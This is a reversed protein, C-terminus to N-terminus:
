STNRSPVQCLTSFPIGVLASRIRYTPVATYSSVRRLRPRRFGPHHGARVLIEDVRDETLSLDDISRRRPPPEDTGGIEIEISKWGAKLKVRQPSTKHYGYFIVALIIIMGVIIVMATGM